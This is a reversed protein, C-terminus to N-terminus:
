LLSAIRANTWSPGSVEELRQTLAALEKNAQAFADPRVRLVGDRLAVALPRLNKPAYAALTRLDDGAMMWDIPTKTAKVHDGGIRMVMVLAFLDAVGRLGDMNKAAAEKTATPLRRISVACYDLTTTILLDAYLAANAHEEAKVAALAKELLGEIAPGGKYDATGIHGLADFGSGGLLARALMMADEIRDIGPRQAPMCAFKIYRQLDVAHQIKYNGDPHIFEWAGASASPYALPNYYNNYALIAYPRMACATVVGVAAVGLLKLLGTM